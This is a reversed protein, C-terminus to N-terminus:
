LEDVFYKNYVWRYPGSFIRAIAEPIAPAAWYFLAALAIGGLGAAIAVYGLWEPVNGESVPFIPELFKPINIFGGGLSLIALIALPVWMVAPSEHIGGHGHGHDDHAHGHDEEKGIKGRYEGVFTLFLARFVYFATMFATIVGVWYIWPEHEY